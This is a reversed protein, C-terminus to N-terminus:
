WLSAEMNTDYDNNGMQICFCLRMVSTVSENTGVTELHGKRAKAGHHSWFM